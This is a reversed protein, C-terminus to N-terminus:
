RQESFDEPQPLADILASVPTADDLTEIAAIARDAARRDLGAWTMLERAKALTDAESLPNDPDGLADAVTAAVEQGDTLTMTVSAGFHRPYAQTLAPDEAVTVTERLAAIRGDHIAPPEFAELPPRGYFLVAAVCHQLSFKAEIPTSPTANDCFTVADRYTRVEVHDLHLPDIRDRMALAADITPHAHRCAAWPKFSVDWIKWAADPDAVVTDAAADPCTAAFLGLPGDLIAAPGAGGLRALDASQVGWAAARGTHVQKSIVGPDLRMQWLGGTTTGANGLAWVTQEPTLKLLSAAAAAAGFPGATATNHFFAYHGPGLAAGIRIMAEYGRVVGDLLAGVAAGEREAVALAAPIVVPGPHLISTRHIDDMELVNGLGGNLMVAAELGRRGAGLAYVAGPERGSAHAHLVRGAPSAMGATACGLWDIVHRRARQRTEADVPTTLRGALTQTLTAPGARETHTPSTMVTGQPM